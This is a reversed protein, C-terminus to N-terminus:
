EAWAAIVEGALALDEEVSRGRQTLYGGIMMANAGALFAMGMFDKFFSERGAALRITSKPNAIRFVSITKLAEGVSIKECNELPTGPIPMLVNVPISDPAIQALELAMQARDERSEGMGIIGGCCISLGAERALEITRLRDEFTHTSTIKPFCSSAAEINHHYRDLGADRLRHFQDLTLIGLSACPMIDAKEAVCSIAQAVTEVENDDLQRGSTVIGFRGSGIAAAEDAAQAMKESSILPYEDIGTTYHVSQACYRCDETCKGCKANCITCTEFRGPLYERRVKDAMAALESVPLDYLDLIDKLQM